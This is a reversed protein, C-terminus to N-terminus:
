GEVDEFKASAYFGPDSELIIEKPNQIRDVNIIGEMHDFEHLFVRNMIRGQQTDDKERWQKLNREEDYYEFEVWAPRVTPVIMPNASMCIEPYRLKKEAIRTIKPNIVVMLGESTYIVSWREGIGVQVATIGRGYGTIKRYRLLCGKLYKIKRRMAVSKITSIKVNKSPQRLRLDEGIQYVFGAVKGAKKFVQKKFEKFPPAKPRWM